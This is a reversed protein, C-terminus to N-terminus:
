AKTDKKLIKGNKDILVKAYCRRKWNLKMSLGTKIMRKM